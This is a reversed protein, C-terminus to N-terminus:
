QIRRSSCSGAKEVSERCSARGIEGQRVIERLTPVKLGHADPNLYTQPMMGDVSVVIVHEIPGAAPRQTFLRSHATQPSPPRTDWGRRAAPRQATLNAGCLLAVCLVAGGRIATKARVRHM